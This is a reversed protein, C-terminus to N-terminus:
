RGFRLGMEYIPLGQYTEGTRLAFNDVTLTERGQTFKYIEVRQDNLENIRRASTNARRQAQLAANRYVNAANGLNLHRDPDLQYMEQYLDAKQHLVTAREIQAVFENSNVLLNETARHYTGVARDLAKKEEFPGHRLVITQNTFPGDPTEQLYARALWAFGTNTIENSVVRVWARLPRVPLPQRQAEPLGANNTIITTANTWWHFLPQLSVRQENVLRIPDTFDQAVTTNLLLLVVPATPIFRLM